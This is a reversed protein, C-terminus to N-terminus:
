KDGTKSPTEVKKLLAAVDAWLQAFTKREAEPLKELDAKDRIGAFDPNKQCHALIAHAQAAESPWWSELQKQRATLEARLWDLAQKRLRAREKDDLNAADEGKGAAALAAECAAKYRHAAKLDDALKPDAAFADAYQNVSARYLKKLRCLEALRLREDNTGPRYDGKLLAPLKDGVAALREARALATRAAALVGPEKPRLAIVTKWCAIAEDLKGKESLALGLNYHAIAIKPDLAIAKQYCPIAEDVKGKGSFAIALNFHAATYKPDIATVKKWCEIAEDVKGTVQMALGLNYHAHADKPDLEIAKRYCPIAEPV